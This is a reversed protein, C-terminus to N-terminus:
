NLTIEYVGLNFPVPQNKYTFSKVEYHTGNCKNGNVKVTSLDIEPYPIQDILIILSQKPAAVKVLSVYIFLGDKDELIMCPLNEGNYVFDVVTNTKISNEDAADIIRFKLAPPPPECNTKGCTIFLISILLYLLNTAKIM